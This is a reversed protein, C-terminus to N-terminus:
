FCSAAGAPDAAAAPCDAVMEDEPVPIVEIVEEVEEVEEVVGPACASLLVALTCTMTLRM